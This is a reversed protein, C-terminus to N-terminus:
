GRARRVDSCSGLEAEDKAVALLALHRKPSEALRHFNRM